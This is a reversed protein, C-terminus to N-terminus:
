ELNSSYGLFCCLTIKYNYLSFLDLVNTGNAKGFKTYDLLSSSLKKEVSNNANHFMYYM